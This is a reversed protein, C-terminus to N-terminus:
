LMGSAVISFAISLSLFLVVFAEFQPIEHTAAFTPQLRAFLTVLTFLTTVIIFVAKDHEQFLSLVVFLITNAPIFWASYAFFANVTATAGQLSRWRDTEYLANAMHRLALWSPTKKVGLRELSTNAANAIALFIVNILKGIIHMGVAVVFIAIAMALPLTAQDMGPLSAYFPNMAMPYGLSNVLTVLLVSMGVGFGCYVLLKSSVKADAITTTALHPELARAPSTTFEILFGFYDSIAEPTAKLLDM